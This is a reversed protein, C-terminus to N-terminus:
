DYDKKILNYIIDGLGGILYLATLCLNIYPIFGVILILIAAPRWEDWDYYESQTPNRQMSVFDNSRIYGFFVILTILTNFIAPILYMIWYWKDTFDLFNM